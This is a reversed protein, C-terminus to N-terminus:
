MRMEAQAGNQMAAIHGVVASWDESGIRLSTRFPYQLEFLLVLVATVMVAVCGTMLLHVRRNREGFVWCFCTVCVAGLLLVFWAFGGIDSSNEALRRQRVDHLIGLQSLTASQANAQSLDAPKFTGAAGIADMILIDGRGDFGGDRMLPWERAVMLQAYELLDGRVRARQAKPLGVAMHWADAAAASETGVYHRAETFHEWAAVTLFGLVVAYLTGAIAIIVGGVENHRVFEDEPFHRHVLWQGTCAFAAALTAAVILVLPAPLAIFFDFAHTLM